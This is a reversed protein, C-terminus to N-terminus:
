SSRAASGSCLAAALFTGRVLSRSCGLHALSPAGIKRPPLIRSPSGGLNHLRKTAHSAFLLDHARISM